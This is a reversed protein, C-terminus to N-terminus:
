YIKEKFDINSIKCSSKYLLLIYYIYIDNDNSDNKDSDNTNDDNHNTILRIILIM